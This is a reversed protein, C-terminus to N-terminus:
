KNGHKITIKFDKLFKLTLGFGALYSITDEKIERKTRKSVYKRTSFYPQTAQPHQVIIDVWGTIKIAAPM